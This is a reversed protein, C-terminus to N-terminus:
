IWWLTLGGNREGLLLIKSDSNLNPPFQKAWFILTKSWNNVDWEIIEEIPLKM